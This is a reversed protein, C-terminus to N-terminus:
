IKAGMPEWTLLLCFNTFIQINFITLFSYITQLYPPYPAAWLIQDPDMCRHGLFSLKRVSQRVSAPAVITARSVFDLLALFQWIQADFKAM